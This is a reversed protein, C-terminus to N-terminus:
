QDGNKANPRLNGINFFSEGNYLISYIFLSVVLRNLLFIYQINQLPGKFHFRMGVLSGKFILFVM